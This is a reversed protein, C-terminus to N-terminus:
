LFCEHIAKISKELFEKKVLITINLGGSAQSIALIEIENSGLASFIKGLIGPLGLDEGIIAIEAVIKSKVIFWRRFFDSNRIVKVAKKCDKKDVVFTTNIESSSQSVMTVNINNKGMLDFLKALTGPVEVLAESIASVMAVERIYEIGKINKEKEGFKDIKTGKEKSLDNFNRIELPIEKYQIHQICRPHLIKAGFYSIEKAQEYTLSQILNANPEIQPDATMIGDIPEWFILNVLYPEGQLSDAIITATLDNGGPGLTTIHGEKNRGISGSVIPISNHELLPLIAEKIKRATVEMIPLSDEGIVILNNASIFEVDFNQTSLYNTLIYASFLEGFSLIFNTKFSSPGFEKIDELKEKIKELNDQLFEDLLHVQYESFISHIIQDHRNKITQLTSSVNQKRAAEIISKNLLDSIEPLASVVLVLKSDKFKKLIEVVQHYSDPSILCKRGLRM